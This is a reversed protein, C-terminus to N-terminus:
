VSTKSPQEQAAEFLQAAFLESCFLEASLYSRLTSQAGRSNLASQLRQRWHQMNAPTTLPSRTFHQVGCLHQWYPNTQTRRIVDHDSLQYKQKLYNLALMTRLTLRAQRSEREAPSLLLREFAAWDVEQGLLVLPHHTDVLRDLEIPVSESREINNHEERAAPAPNM